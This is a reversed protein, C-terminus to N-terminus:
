HGHRAKSCERVRSCTSTRRPTLKICTSQGCTDVRVKEARARGYRRTVRWTIYRRIGGKGKREERYSFFFSLRLSLSPPLPNDRMAVTIPISPGNFYYTVNLRSVDKPARISVEQSVSLTLQTEKRLFSRSSQELTSSKELPLAHGTKM